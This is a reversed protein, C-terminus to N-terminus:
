EEATAGFECSMPGSIALAESKLELIMYLATDQQSLPKIATLGGNFERGENDKASLSWPSSEDGSEKGTGIIPEQNKGALKMTATKDDNMNLTFRSQTAMMQDPGDVGLTVILTGTCTATTNAHAATAIFVSSLMVFLMKFHLM